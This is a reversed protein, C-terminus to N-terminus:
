NSFRKLASYHWPPAQTSSFVEAFEDECRTFTPPTTGALQFHALLYNVHYAVRRRIFIIM